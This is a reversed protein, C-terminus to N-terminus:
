PNSRNKAADTRPRLKLWPEGGGSVGSKVVVFRSREPTVPQPYDMPLFDDNFRSHLETHVIEGKLRFVLFMEGDDTSDVTVHRRCQSETLQLQKCVEERTRYPSFMHLADWEFPAVVRLDVETQRKERVEERLATGVPGASFGFPNCGMLSM